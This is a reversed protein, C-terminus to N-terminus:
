DTETTSPWHHRPTGHSRLMLLDHVFAYGLDKRGIRSDRPLAAADTSGALPPRDLGEPEAETREPHAQDCTTVGVLWDARSHEPM